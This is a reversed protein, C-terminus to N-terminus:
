VGPTITGYYGMGILSRFTRNAGAIARLEALAEEETAPAPLDLPADSRIVAPLAEDVLADLSGAGVAELMRAIEGDDPGIHRSAFASMDPGGIFRWWAPLPPHRVAHRHRGGRDRQGARGGRARDRSRRSRPHR